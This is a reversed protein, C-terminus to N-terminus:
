KNKSVKIRTVEQEDQPKPTFLADLVNDITYGGLGNQELTSKIIERNVKKTNKKTVQLKFTFNKGLKFETYDNEVMFNKILDEYKLKDKKFEKMQETLESLQENLNLYSKVIQTINEDQSLQQIPTVQEETM